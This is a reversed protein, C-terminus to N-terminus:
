VVDVPEDGASLGARPVTSDVGVPDAVQSVEADLVIDGEEEFLPTAM